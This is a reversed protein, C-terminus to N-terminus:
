QNVPSEPDLLFAVADAIEKPTLWGNHGFRPMMSCPYFAQANYIKEYTYKISEPSLGRLKGFGTLSPGLNGAAIEKKALAHCAYCNGGKRTGPRDPQINGIHGGTGVSALKEGEKWSGMLKGDEPYRFSEQQTELIRKAVDPPAHNRYRSCLAQAEDQRLRENWEETSAGSFSQRVVAETRAHLADGASAATCLGAFIMAAIHRLKPRM